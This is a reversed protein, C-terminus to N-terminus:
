LGTSGPNVFVKICFCISDSLDFGLHLLDNIFDIHSPCYWIFGVGRIYEKCLRCTCSDPNWVSVKSKFVSVTESNRIENPLSNWIVFGFYRLSNNGKLVINVSPIVLDQQSRLTFHHSSKFLFDNDNDSM